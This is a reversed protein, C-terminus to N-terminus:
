SFYFPRVDLKQFFRQLHYIYANLMNFPLPVCMQFLKEVDEPTVLGHVLIEPPSHQEILSARIGLDTAPGVSHDDSLNEHDVRRSVLCLTRIM